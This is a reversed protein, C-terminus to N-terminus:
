KRKVTLKPNLKYYTNCDYFVGRVYSCCPEVGQFTMGAKQMVRGSAPNEIAHKLVIKVYGESFLFNLVEKLAETMYGKNWVKKSSSYGVECYFERDNRKVVSISGVPENSSKEIICWNYNAEGMWMSVVQLTEEINKHPEWSLFKTVEKDTAWNDFMGKAFETQWPKLLLRDTFLEERYNAKLSLKM